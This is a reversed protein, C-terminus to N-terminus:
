ILEAAKRLADFKRGCEELSACGCQEIRALIERMREIRLVEADVYARKAAAVRGWVPRPSGDAALEFLSRIEALTCGAAKALEIAALQGLISRDYVRKGARRAAPELLGQEEYYRIASAALGSLKAVRGITLAM